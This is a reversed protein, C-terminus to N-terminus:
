WVAVCRLVVVGHAVLMISQVASLSVLVQSFSESTNAHTANRMM